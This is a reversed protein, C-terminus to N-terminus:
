RLTYGGDIVLAAGTMYRSADSALYVALPGLDEPEGPKGVPIVDIFAQMLEPKDKSWRQNPETMFLGPCISNVTVGRAAWDSAVSRTFQVVAAKGAEYHRGGIGPLTIIACMSGTNIVRGWGRELMPGGILKTAIFCSTLNLDILRRWTDISAHEVPEAVQRDGVNNVLIDIQGTALADSCVRECEEPVGMDGVVTAVDRGLDVIDAATKDLSEATRGTIVIDAGAEALAVAVERGLGRSGGTILARKGDLRFRDLVSM